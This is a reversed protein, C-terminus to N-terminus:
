NIFQTFYTLNRLYVHFHCLKMVPKYANTFELLMISHKDFIRNKGTHIEDFKM